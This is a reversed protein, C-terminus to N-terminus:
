LSALLSRVTDRESMQRLSDTLQQRIFIDDFRTYYHLESMKGNIQFEEFATILESVTLGTKIIKSGVRKIFEFGLEMRYLNM